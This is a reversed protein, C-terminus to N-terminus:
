GRTEKPCYAPVDMWPRLPTFAKGILKREAGQGEYLSVLFGDEVPVSTFQYSAGPIANVEFCGASRVVGGKALHVGAKLLGPRVSVAHHSHPISRVQGNLEVVLTVTMTSWDIDGALSAADSGDYRYPPTSCGALAAAALLSVVAAKRM